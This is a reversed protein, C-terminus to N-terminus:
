KEVGGRHAELKARIMRGAVIAKEQALEMFRGLRDKALAAYRGSREAFEPTRVQALTAQGPVRRSPCDTAPALVYIATAFGAFYIILVGLFKSRWGFVDKERGFFMGTAPSQM